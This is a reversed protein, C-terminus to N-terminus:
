MIHVPKREAQIGYMQKWVAYLTMDSSVTISAKDAYLAVDANESSAWGDFSYGERAFRNGSLPTKIGFYFEQTYSEVTRESEIFSGGNGDFTVIFDTPVEEDDYLDMCGTLALPLVSVFIMVLRSIKLSKM